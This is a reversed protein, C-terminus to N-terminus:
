SIVAFYGRRNHYTSATLALNFHLPRASGSPTTSAAHPDEAAGELTTVAPLVAVVSLEDEPTAVV